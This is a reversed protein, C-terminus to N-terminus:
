ITHPSLNMRAPQHKSLVNTPAIAAETRASQLLKIREEHDAPTADTPSIKNIDGFLHPQKGYVLYFPSTKTTANTRVRCAFLAQDLYLDWWVTPKGMLLKGLMGGIIGNLREVKGNTRPHYPSSGKHVTGIKELYKQVVGAWLNSGGDTFIEQPAGFHMYIEQYIFEAIAEKTAKPIAKAIPWGTAYDVATIIWKNGSPTVPLRGILDIGWRQFPQIYPDTVVQHQEREQNSRHRQHTQCNPCAAVFEKLDRNMSPWWARSEMVNKLSAFTLHGFQRHMKEMLNARFIFEVYPAQIGERIKRFLTENEVVFDDIDKVVKEKISQSLNPPFSKNSLFQRIYPIYEEEKEREWGMSNLYDPRRSLADPVTAEKGPRYKIILNYQQFEEVWRALRKSPNQVTNMYKLSDHDTIITIPLGNEVYHHWKQLANKIALLEKEHTPYNLEAGQLKRGDFAIPHLQGDDGVQYLAM